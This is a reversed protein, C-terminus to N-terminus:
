HGASRGSSTLVLFVSGSRTLGQHPSCGCAGHTRFWSRTAVGVPGGVEERIVAQAFRRLSSARGPAMSTTQSPTASSSRDSGSERTLEGIGASVLHPYMGDVSFGASRLWTRLTRTSVEYQHFAMDDHPQEGPRRVTRNRARYQDQRRLDLAVLDKSRKLLSIWPVTILLAGSTKSVRRHERLAEIVDGRLHEVVGLSVVADFSGDPFPMSRVDGEVFGIDPWHSKAVSLAGEALDIAAVSRGRGKMWAAVYGAGCGAELLSGTAPLFRDLLRLSAGPDTRARALVAPGDVDRWQEEWYPTTEGGHEPM